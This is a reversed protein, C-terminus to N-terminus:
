QNNETKVVSEPRHAITEVPEVSEVPKFTEVSEVPKVPKFALPLQAKNSNNFKHIGALLAEKQLGIIDEHVKLGDKFICVTPLSNVQPLSIMCKIDTDTDVNYHRVVYNHVITVLREFYSSLAHM